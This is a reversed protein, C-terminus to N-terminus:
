EKEDARREDDLQQACAETCATSAYMEDPHSYTRGCARCSGDFGCEPCEEYMDSAFTHECYPCTLQREPEYGDPLYDHRESSRAPTDCYGAALHDTM